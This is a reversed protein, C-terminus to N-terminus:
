KERENLVRRRGAFLPRRYFNQFNVLTTMAVSVRRWETSLNKKKKIIVSKKERGKERRVQLRIGRCMMLKVFDEGVAKERLTREYFRVTTPLPPSVSYIYM